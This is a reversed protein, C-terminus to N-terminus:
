QEEKLSESISLELENINGDIFLHSGDEFSIIVENKRFRHIKSVIKGELLRTARKDIKKLEKLSIEKNIEESM